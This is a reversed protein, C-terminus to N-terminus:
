VQAALWGRNFDLIIVQDDEQGIAVIQGDGKLEQSLQAEVFAQGVLCFQENQAMWRLDIM